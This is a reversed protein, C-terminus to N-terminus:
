LNWSREKLCSESCVARQLRGFCYLFRELSARLYGLTNIECCLNETLVQFLTELTWRKRYLQATLLASASRLHYTLSSLSKASVM